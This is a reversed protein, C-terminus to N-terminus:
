FFENIFNNHRQFIRSLLSLKEQQVQVLDLSIAQHIDIAGWFLQSFTNITCCLDTAEGAYPSVQPIGKDIDILFKGHNWPASSDELTMSFEGAVSPDLHSNELAIKVDVVRGAMFPLIKITNTPKPTITDRLYLYTPDGMPATWSIREVQAKHRYLFDFISKQAWQTIYAIEKAYLQQEQLYYLIYGVPQGQDDRLLLAYGNDCYLDKLLNIWDRHSRSIYGQYQILFQGYVAAIPRFDEEPSIRSFFGGARSLKKLSEPPVEYRLQTYCLEWGYPQYYSTDFPMLISLSHNRRRMERLAEELLPKMFGRNRFEPATIVGVIYSCPFHSNRLVLDYPNLQLCSVLQDELFVGLTNEPTFVEDFYWSYFPENKEFAYGWLVKAAPIHKKELLKINM